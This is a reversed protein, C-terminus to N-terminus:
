AAGESGAARGRLRRRILEQVAPLALILFFTPVVWWRLTCVLEVPSPTQGPMIEVTRRDPAFLGFRDTAVVEIPGVPLLLDLMRWERDETMARGWRMGESWLEVKGGPLRGAGPRSVVRGAVTGLQLPRETRSELSVTGMQISPGQGPIDLTLKLPAVGESDPKFELEYAGEPIDTLGFHGTSDTWSWTILEDVTSAGVWVYNVPLGQCLVTGECRPQSWGSSSITLLFVLLAGAYGLCRSSADRIPSPSPTDM